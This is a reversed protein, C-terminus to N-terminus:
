CIYLDMNLLSILIDQVTNFEFFAINNLGVSVGLKHQSCM